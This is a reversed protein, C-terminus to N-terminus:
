FSIVPKKAKPAPKIHEPKEFMVHSFKGQKFNRREGIFDKDFIGINLYEAIMDLDFKQIKNLLLRSKESLQKLRDTTSDTWNQIDQTKIEHMSVELSIGEMFLDLLESLNGYVFVSFIYESDEIAFKIESFRSSAVLKGEKEETFISFNGNENLLDLLTHLDSYLKKRQKFLRFNIDINLSNRNLKFQYMNFFIIAVTSINMMISGIASIASAHESIWSM